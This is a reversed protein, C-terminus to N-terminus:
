YKGNIGIKVKEKSSSSAAKPPAEVAAANVGADARISVVRTPALTNAKRTSLRARSPAVTCQRLSQAMQPNRVLGASGARSWGPQGDPVIPHM